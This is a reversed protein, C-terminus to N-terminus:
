PQPQTEDVDVMACGVPGAAAAAAGGGEEVRVEAARGPDQALVRLFTPSVHAIVRPRSLVREVAERGGQRKALAAVLRVSQHRAHKEWQGGPDAAARTEPRLLLVELLEALTEGPSPAPGAWLEADTLGIGDPPLWDPSLLLDASDGSGDAFLCQTSCFFVRPEGRSAFAALGGLRMSDDDAAPQEQQELCQVCFKVAASLPSHLQQLPPAPPTSPEAELVSRLCVGCAAAFVRPSYLTAPPLWHTALMWTGFAAGRVGANPDCPMAPAPEGAPAGEEDLVCAEWRGAVAAASALATLLAAVDVPPAARRASAANVVPQSLRPLAASLVGQVLHRWALSAARRVRACGSLAFAHLLVAIFDALVPRRSSPEAAGASAEEVAQWVGAVDRSLACGAGPAPAATGAAGGGRPPPPLATVPEACRSGALAVLAAALRVGRLQADADAGCAAAAILAWAPSGPTLAEVAASPVWAGSTSAAEYGGASCVLAALADERAPDAPLICDRVTADAPHLLRALLLAAWDSSLAAPLLAGGASACLGEPVAEWRVIARVIDCAARLVAAAQDRADPTPQPRELVRRLLRSVVARAQRVQADGLGVAPLDFRHRFPPKTNSCSCDGSSHSKNAGM